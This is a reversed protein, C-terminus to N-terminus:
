KQSVCLRPPEGDPFEVGARVFFREIALLLRGAVRGKTELKAVTSQSVGAAIALDDQSLGLLKRASKVQESTLPGDSM